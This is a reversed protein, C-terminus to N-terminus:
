RCWVFPKLFFHWLRADSRCWMFPKLIFAVTPRRLSVVYLAQFSFVTFIWSTSGDWPYEIIIGVIDRTLGCCYYDYVDCTVLQTELEPKVTEGGFVSVLVSVQGM